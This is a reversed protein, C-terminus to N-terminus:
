AASPPPPSGIFYEAIRNTNENLEGPMEKRITASHTVNANVNADLVQPINKSALCKAIERKERGDLTPDDLSKELILWAKDLVRLRLAENANSARGSRGKVGAM